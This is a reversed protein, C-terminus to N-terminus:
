EPERDPGRRLRLQLRELEELAALDYEAGALALVTYGGFSHGLAVVAAVDVAFGLDGAEAWDLVASVDRPRRWYIATERDPSDFTTNGTHDPALVAWGHSALHVMQRSSAEAYGQHGHSFVAVPHTGPAPEVNGLAGPAEFLGRYKIPTGETSESPFWVALRLTRAEGTDEIYTVEHEVYGAGYPGPAAYFVEPAVDPMATDTGDGAGCGVLALWAIM